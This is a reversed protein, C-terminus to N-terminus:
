IRRRGLDDIMLEKVRTYKDDRDGALHTVAWDELVDIISEKMTCEVDHHDLYPCGEVDFDPNHCEYVTAKTYRDHGRGRDLIEGDWYSNLYECGTLETMGGELLSLSREGRLDRWM